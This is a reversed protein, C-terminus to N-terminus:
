IHLKFLGGLRQKLFGHNRSLTFSINGGYELGCIGNRTYTKSQKQCFFSKLMTKFIRALSLSISCFDLAHYVVSRHVSGVGSVQVMNMIIWFAFTCCQSGNLSEPAFHRIVARPIALNHLGSLRQTWSQGTNKDQRSIIAAGLGEGKAEKTCNQM